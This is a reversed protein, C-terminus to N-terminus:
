AVREMKDLPADPTNDQKIQQKKWEWATKIITEIDSCAPSWGLLKMAKDPSAVLFPPDGARRQQEIVPLESGTHKRAADIIQKVSYGNGTGLNLTLSKNRTSIYSLAKIHAQAIDNVHIYDRIATGDETPYDTGYLNISDRQRACVQMILPILHTDTKYATGTQREPDAGAANFYRLIAFNMSYANAFDRIMNEMALKTQGYPNVPALRTSETLRNAGSPDYVAATSSFVLNRIGRLHAEELLCLSGYVNNEYFDSPNSVSQAVQILAAFHMIASPRYHNIVEALRARDRVDGHEFPGWKVSKLNGSCLNDYTVPLFGKQSLLKCTHSGIYGAGGTVLIINNLHSM